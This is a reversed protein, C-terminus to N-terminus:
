QPFGLVMVVLLLVAYIVVGLLIILFHLPSADEISPNRRPHGRGRANAMSSMMCRSCWASTGSQSANVRCTVLEHRLDRMDPCTM